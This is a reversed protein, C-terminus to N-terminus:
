EKRHVATEAKDVTKKASDTAEHSMDKLAAMGSGDVRRHHMFIRVVQTLGVCGVFFNM